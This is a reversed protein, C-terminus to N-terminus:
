ESMDKSKRKKLRGTIKDLIEEPFAEIEEARDFLELASM